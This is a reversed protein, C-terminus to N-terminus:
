SALEPPVRYMVWTSRDIFIYDCRAGFKDYLSKQQAKNLVLGSLTAEGKQAPPIKYKVLDSKDIPVDIVRCEIGFLEEIQTIQRQDLEIRFFAEKPQSDILGRIEDPDVMYMPTIGDGLEIFECSHGLEAKLERKQWDTLYMKKRREWGPDVGYRLIAPADSPVVWVHCDLGLFDKVMRMQWDTLYIASVKKGKMTEAKKKDDM